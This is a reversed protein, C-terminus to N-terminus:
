SSMGMLGTLLFSVGAVTLAANGTFMLGAGFIMFLAGEIFFPKSIEISNIKPDPQLPARIVGAEFRDVPFLNAPVILFDDPKYFDMVKVSLGFITTVRGAMPLKANFMNAIQPSVNISHPQLGMSMMEAM